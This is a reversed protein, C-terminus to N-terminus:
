AHAIKKGTKNEIFSNFDALESESFEETSLVISTDAKSQLLYFADKHQRVLMLDTYAVSQSPRDADTESLICICDEEFLYRISQPEEPVDLRNIHMHSYIVPIAVILMACISYISLSETSVTFSGTFICTCLMVLAILLVFPVRFRYEFLYQFYLRQETRTLNHPIDFRPNM